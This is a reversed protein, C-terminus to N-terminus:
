AFDTTDDILRKQETDWDFEKAFFDSCKRDLTFIEGAGVIHM